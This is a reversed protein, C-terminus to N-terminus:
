PFVRVTIKTGTKVRTGPAPDQDFVRGNKGGFIGQVDIDLNLGKLTNGADDASMGRLDPVVVANSVVVTVQNNGSGAVTQGAPPDTRIV